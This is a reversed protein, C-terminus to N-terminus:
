PTIFSFVMSGPLGCIIIHRMRMAHEIALAVLVLESNTIIKRKLQLLPQM